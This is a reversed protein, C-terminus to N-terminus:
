PQNKKYSLYVLSDTAYDVNLGFGQELASFIARTDAIQFQGGIRLARAEDSKIIINIDTYRSIRFKRFLFLHSM